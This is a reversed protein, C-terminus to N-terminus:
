TGKAILNSALARLNPRGPNREVEGASHHECNATELSYLNVGFAKRAAPCPSTRDFNRKYFLRTVLVGYLVRM